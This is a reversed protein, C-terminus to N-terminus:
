RVAAATGTLTPAALLRPTSSSKKLHELDTLPIKPFGNGSLELDEYKYTITKIDPEEPKVYVEKDTKQDSVVVQAVSM